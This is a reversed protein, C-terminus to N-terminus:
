NANITLHGFVRRVGDDNVDDSIIVLRGQESFVIETWKEPAARKGFDVLRLIKVVVAFANRDFDDLLLTQFVTERRVNLSLDRDHAAQTMGM